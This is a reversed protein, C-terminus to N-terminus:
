MGIIDHCTEACYRLQPLFVHFLVSYFHVDNCTPVSPISIETSTETARVHLLTPINGRM